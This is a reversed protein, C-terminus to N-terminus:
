YQVEAKNVSVYLPKNQQNKYLDSKKKALEMSNWIYPPTRGKFCLKETYVSDLLGQM